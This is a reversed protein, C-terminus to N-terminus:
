VLSGKVKESTIVSSALVIPLIQVFYAGGFPDAPAVIRLLTPLVAKSAHVLFKLLLAIIMKVLMM